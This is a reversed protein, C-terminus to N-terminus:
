QINKWIEKVIKVVISKSFLDFSSLSEDWDRVRTRRTQVHKVVPAWGWLKYKSSTPFDPHAGQPKIWIYMLWALGFKFFKTIEFIQSFNSIYLLIYCYCFINCYYVFLIVIIYQFVIIYLIIYYSIHYM